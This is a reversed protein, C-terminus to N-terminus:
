AGKITGIEAGPMLMIRDGVQTHGCVLTCAITAGGVLSKFIDTVSM